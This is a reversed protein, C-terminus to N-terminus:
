FTVFLLLESSGFYNDTYKSSFVGNFLGGILHIIRQHRILFIDLFTIYFEQTNSFLCKENKENEIKKENENKKWKVGQNAIRRVTRPVTIPWGGKHDQHRTLWDAAAYFHHLHEATSM